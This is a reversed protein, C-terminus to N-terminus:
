FYVIPVFINILAMGIVSASTIRAARDRSIVIGHAMNNNASM